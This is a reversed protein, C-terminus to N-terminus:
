INTGLLACTNRARSLVVLTDLVTEGTGAICFFSLLQQLPLYTYRIFLM